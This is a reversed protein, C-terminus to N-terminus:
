GATVATAEEQATARTLVELDASGFPIEGAAIRELRQQKASVADIRERRQQARARSAEQRRM